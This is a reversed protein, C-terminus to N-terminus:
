VGHLDSPGWSPAVIFVVGLGIRHSAIPNGSFRRSAYGMKGLLVLGIKRVLKKCFNQTLTVFLLAQEAVDVQFTQLFYPLRHDAVKGFTARPVGRLSSWFVATRFYRVRNKSFIV